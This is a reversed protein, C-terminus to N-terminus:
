DLQSAPGFFEYRSQEAPVGMKALYGKIARMFPTPGLFYADVDRTQPLWKELHTQNLHGVANVPGGAPATAEDHNQYVYFSKIAPFRKALADVAERFAHTAASRSCHIFHISRGTPAAAELMALAPTIGVGGTIFVLPKDNAQLTFVGSPPFVDLVSGVKVIDHLYNSAMGGPERKVSIRYTKGNPAASLSYNRRIENGAVNLRLGLYQGAQFDLLPKGDEPQLYFSTIESSEDKKEVVSFRRTGRWGGTAHERAAYVSEEAGILIDALQGYAAGWAEIVADTAIEEGLVERISALLCGGVIPYHEPLIQLGVHKTVIQGVLDGLQDLRDIHKAYMLIGRALARAQQGDAQHASNFFPRVEPHQDLLLRYFHTTLTEGGTELIPVTATIIARHAASLM